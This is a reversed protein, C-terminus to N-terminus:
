GGKRGAATEDRVASAAHVLGKALEVMAGTAKALQAALGDSDELRAQMRAVMETLRELQKRALMSERLWDEKTTYDREIGEVQKEVNRIQEQLGRLQNTKERDRDAQQDRIARLYITMVSMPVGVLPGLVAVLTATTEWDM